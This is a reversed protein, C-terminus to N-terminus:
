ILKRALCIYSTRGAVFVKVPPIKFGEGLEVIDANKKRENKCATANSSHFTNTVGFM